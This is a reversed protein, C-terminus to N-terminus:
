EVKSLDKSPKKGSFFWTLACGVTKPLEPKTCEGEKNFKCARVWCAEIEKEVTMSGRREMVRITRVRGRCEPSNDLNLKSGM